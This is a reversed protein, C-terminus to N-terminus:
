VAKLKLQDLYWNITNQLGDRINTQEKWNLRQTIKSNDIAYRADHGLRDSVHVIQSTYSGHSKPLIRNLEDCVLEILDINAWEENGGINYSEGVTGEKLVLHLAKVHDEVYLWDRIQRGNGYVPIELGSVARKIVTPILKEENQNPGYNNSCNTIIFPIGYTRGWARVLHDSSAKSASYPSSPAYSTKETFKPLYNSTSNDPHPLDGFVEDTSIHHFRFCEKKHSDLCNLYDRVVELLNFTGIINTTIFDGPKSISRDVHSEAALHMVATPQVEKFIQRLNEISRIDACYFRYKSNSSLHSIFSENSAYSLSDVNVVPLGKETVLYNCLNSGIFGSGGTVLITM